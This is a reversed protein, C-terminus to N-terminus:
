RGDPRRGRSRGLGRRVSKGTRAGVSRRGHAARGGLEDLSEAGPRVLIGGQSEEALLSGESAKVKAAFHVFEPGALLHEDYAKVRRL